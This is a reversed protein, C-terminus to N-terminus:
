SDQEVCSVRRELDKLSGVVNECERDFGLLPNIKVPSYADYRMLRESTGYEVDCVAM